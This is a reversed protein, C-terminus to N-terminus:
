LARDAGSQVRRRRAPRPAHQARAERGRHGDQADGAGDGTEAGVRGGLEPLGAAGDGRKDPLM